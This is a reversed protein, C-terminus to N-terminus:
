DRCIGSGTLGFHVTQSCGFTVPYRACVGTAFVAPKRLNLKGLCQGFQCQFGALCYKGADAAPFRCTEKPALGARGWDGGEAVCQEQNDPVPGTNQSVNKALLKYLGNDLAPLLWTRSFALAILIVTIWFIIKLIKM